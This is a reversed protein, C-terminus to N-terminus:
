LKNMGAMKCSAANKEAQSNKLLYLIVHIVLTTRLQVPYTTGVRHAELTLNNLVHLYRKYVYHETDLLFYYPSVLRIAM